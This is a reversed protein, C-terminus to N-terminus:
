LPGCPLIIIKVLTDCEIFITYIFLHEHCLKPVLKNGKLQVITMIKM